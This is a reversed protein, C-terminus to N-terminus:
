IKLSLKNEIDTCISVMNAFEHPLASLSHDRISTDSKDLTFHKEIIKAGRAVALICMDIGVTHDSYGDYISKNFNKPFKKIDWPYTPYKSICFLYKIKSNKKFPLKKKNWFGLSIITNKKLNIIRKALSLNEKLTRSAIKYTNFKYKKIINFGNNSIISFFVEINLYKGIKMIKEITAVTIQNIEGPKDRWGIQFKVASAGSNKAQKILEYCLDFNGNHNM